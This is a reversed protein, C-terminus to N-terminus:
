AYRRSDFANPLNFAGGIPNIARLVCAPLKAGNRLRASRDIYRPLPRIRRLLPEYTFGPDPAQARGDDAVPHAPQIGHSSPDCEAAVYGPLGRLLFAGPM